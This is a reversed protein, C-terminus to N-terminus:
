GPAYLNLGNEDFLMPTRCRICIPVRDGVRVAVQEPLQITAKRDDPLSVHILTSDGLQEVVDVIPNIDPATADLTFFDPRLGIERPIGPRPPAPLEISAGAFHAQLGSAGPGCHDLAIFNTQPQGLFGAVFRNRPHNFLDLPAGAQEIAGDNMVVIRDALTIAEVQDHTVYIITAGLRRHLRALEVRMDVRLAADLNSLPEDFLFIRPDRLLARGIAVRQRQGGSLQRPKHALLHDIRLLTAAENVRRRIEAKPVRAIRLGFGINQAVTMHPYLAYSQFVMAVGRDKPALSTVDRGDLHLSGSDAGQLGAITRLLTSKGCGSPGVLVVFEGDEVSLAINRLAHFDGFRKELGMAEFAPPQPINM